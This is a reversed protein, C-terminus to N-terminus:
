PRPRTPPPPIIGGSGTPLPLLLCIFRSKPHSGATVSPTAASANATPVRAAPWSRVPATRSDTTGSRASQDYAIEAGARNRTVRTRSPCERDPGGTLTTQPGSIIGGNDSLDRLAPASARTTSPPVIFSGPKRRQTAVVM